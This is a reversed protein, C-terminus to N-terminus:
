AVYYTAIPTLYDIEAQTLGGANLMEYAVHAFSDAQTAEAYYKVGNIEVYAQAKFVLAYHAPGFGKLVATFTTQEANFWNVVPINLYGLSENTLRTGYTATLGLTELMAKSEASVSNYFRLGQTGTTKADIGGTTFDVFLAELSCAGNVMVPNTKYQSGTGDTYKWGIFAGGVKKPAVPSYVSGVDLNGYKVVGNVTKSVTYEPAQVRAFSVSSTGTRRVNVDADTWKAPDAIVTGARYDTIESETYTLIRGFQWGANNLDATYAVWLLYSAVLTDGMGVFASKPIVIFGSTPADARIYPDTTILSKVYSFDQNLYTINTGTAVAFQGALDQMIIRTASGASSLNAYEFAFYTTNSIDVSGVDAVNGAEFKNIMLGEEAYASFSTQTLQVGGILGTAPAQVISLTTASANTERGSFWATTWTAFDTLTIMDTVLDPNSETYYGVKGFHLEVTAATTEPLTIYLAEITAMGAFVSAPLVIYGSSQPTPAIANNYQVQKTEMLNFNDDYIAYPTGETLNIFDGNQQCIFYFPWAGDMPNYYRIALHTANSLELTSLAIPELMVGGQEAVSTKTLAIGNFVSTKPTDATVDTKQAFFPTAFVFFLCALLVSLIKHKKM